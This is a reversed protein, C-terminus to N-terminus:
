DDRVEVREIPLAGSVKAVGPELRAEVSLTPAAMQLRGVSTEADKEFSLRVNLSQSALRQTRLVRALALVSVLLAAGVVLTLWNVVAWPRPGSSVQLIIAGAFTGLDTGAPPAQAIIEGAPRNSAATFTSAAGKYRPKLEETAREISSGVLNPMPRPKRKKPPPPEESTPKDNAPTPPGDATGAPRTNTPPNPPLEGQPTPEVVPPPNEPTTPPVEETPNQTDARVPEPGPSVHLVIRTQSQLATGADPEQAVIEGAPRGPEATNETATAHYRERLLERAADIQLGVLNPMRRGLSVSLVVQPRRRLDVGPDPLQAVVVGAPEDSSVTNAIVGREYKDRLLQTAREIRTGVVNPMPLPADDPGASVRLVIRPRTRLDTGPPPEQAVVEGAPRDSAETTTGAVAHYQRRLLDRAHDIGDGVVNPMPLPPTPDIRPGSSVRLEIPPRTRLDTGARPQQAIITGAAARPDNVRTTRATSHYQVKLLELADGIQRGVLDPMPLGPQGPPQPQSQPGRSVWLVIKPKTRLDTGAPPRQLYVRGVPEKSFGSQVDFSLRYTDRLLSSAQKFDMGVFDPMPRAPVRQAALPPQQAASPLGTALALMAAILSHAVVRHFNRNPRSM